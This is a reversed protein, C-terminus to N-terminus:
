EGYATIHDGWQLNYAETQQEGQHTWAGEIGISQAAEERREARARSKVGL